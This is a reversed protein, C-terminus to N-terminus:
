RSLGKALILGGVILAAWPLISSLSLSGGLSPLVNSPITYGSVGNPTTVYQSTGNQIAAALGPPLSSGPAGTYIPVLQGNPGVAYTIPAPSAGSAARAIQAQLVQQQVQANVQNNQLQFYATALKTVDALGQNSTLFNGVSSAASAIGSGVTSLFGGSSNDTAVDFTGTDPASPNVAGAPAAGGGITVLTPQFSDLPNVGADFSTSVTDLVSYDPTFDLADAANTGTTFDPTFYLDSDSNDFTPTFYLDEGDDAFGRLHSRALAQAAQKRAVYSHLYTYFDPHAQGIWQALQQAATSVPKAGFLRGGRGRWDM